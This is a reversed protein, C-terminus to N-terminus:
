DDTHVFEGSESGPAVARSLGLITRHLMLVIAVTLGGLLSSTGLFGYYIVQYVSRLAESEELPVEMLLLLCVAGIIAVVNMLSIQRIREYHMRDFQLRKSQTFALLTLMLALVTAGMTLMSSCLFRVAPKASELLGRAEVSGAAGVSFVTLFLMGAVVAGGALTFRLDPWASWDSKGDDGKATPTAPEDGPRESTPAM